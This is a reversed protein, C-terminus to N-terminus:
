YSAAAVPFSGEWPRPGFDADRERALIRANTLVRELFAKRFSETHIRSALLHIRSAAAAVLEAAEARKGAAAFAEIMALRALEDSALVRGDRAFTRAVHDAVVLAEEAQPGGRAALALAVLAYLSTQTPLPMPLAALARRAHAEMEEFELRYWASAARYGWAIALQEAPGNAELVPVLRDLVDAAASFRATRVYVFALHLNAERELPALGLRRADAIAQVFNEEARDHLGLRLTATALAIRAAAASRVDRTQERYSIARELAALPEEPSDTFQARFVRGLAFAADLAAPDLDGRVALQELRDLRDVAKAEGIALLRETVRAAGVVAVLTLPALPELPAREGIAVIAARDGRAAAAGAIEGAARHFAPTGPAALAFAAEAHTRRLANDGSWHGIDALLLHIDLPTFSEARGADGTALALGQEALTRAASFANGELASRAARGFFVAARQPLGARLFQEAVLSPAIDARQALFEAAWRHGENRDEDVVTAYAAARLLPHRFRYADNRTSSSPPGTKTFRPSEPTSPTSVRVSPSLLVPPVTHISPVLSAQISLSGTRNRGGASKSPAGDRSAVPGSSSPGLNPPAGELPSAQELLTASSPPGIPALIEKACLEETTAALVTASLNPLLARLGAEPVTDGFFSAVRLVRRAEASLGAFRAELIAVLSEDTTSGAVVADPHRALEELYFPNGEAQALIREVIEESVPAEAEEGELLAALLRAAARRPLPLLPVELPPDADSPPASPRESVSPFDRGALVLLVSSPVTTALHEVLRLSAADAWQVDDIFLVLNGGAAAAASAEATVFRVVADQLLDGMLRPSTRAARLEPSVDDPFPVRALEGLFEAVDAAAAGDLVRTVRYIIQDQKTALPDDDHFDAARRVLDALVHLPSGSQEGPALARPSGFGGDATARLVVAPPHARALFEEVLRTKGLGAGGLVRVLRPAEEALSEAYAGELSALERQRAVFPESRTTRRERARPAVDELSPPLGAETAALLYFRERDGMRPAGAGTAADSADAWRGLPEPTALQFRRSATTDAELLRATMADLVPAFPFPDDVDDADSPASRLLRAVRDLLDGLGREPRAEGDSAGLFGTALAVRRDPSRSAVLAALQAAIRAQASASGRGTVTYLLSGDALLTVEAQFGSAISKAELLRSEDSARDALAVVTAADIPADPSSSVRKRRASIVISAVRREDVAFRPGIAAGSMSSPPPPLVSLRTLTDLVAAGDAPRELPDKALMTEIIEELSLPIDSRLESLRRPAEFLIKALLAAVNESQFAPRGALCEYLVCGLAFVDAAPTPTRGGRAQEPAMYGPTGVLAGTKTAGELGLIRAIGFDVIKVKQPDGDVVFLNAPKVDRHVIGHKHLTILGEAVGRAIAIADHVPLPGRALYGDLDTGALWEMAIYPRGDAAVGHAVYRVIRPDNVDALIRGEQAFREYERLARAAVLKVAVLAGTSRDRARFVDGMGGGGVKLQLEFREEFEGVAVFM